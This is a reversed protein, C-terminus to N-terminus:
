LLLGLQKTSNDSSSVVGAEQPSRRTEIFTRIADKLLLKNSGNGKWGYWKFMHRYEIVETLGMRIVEDKPTNHQTIFLISGKGSRQCADCLREFALRQGYPIVVGEVKTEAFVFLENHYEILSDLDTPTITNGFLLDSFDRIQAARERYIIVGREPM